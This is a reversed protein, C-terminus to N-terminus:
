FPLDDEFDDTATPVEGRVPEPLVPPKPAAKKKADTKKPAAEEKETPPTEKGTFKDLAEKIKGYVFVDAETKDYTKTITGKTPHKKETVVWKPVEEYPKYALKLWEEGRKFFFNKYLRLKGDAGEKGDKRNLTVIIEDGKNLQLLYPAVANAWDSLWTGDQDYLPIEITTLEDEATELKLEILDVTGSPFQVNRVGLYKVVGTVDNFFRKYTTGNKEGMAWEFAEFGEQAEKSKEVFQHTRNDIKLNRYTM